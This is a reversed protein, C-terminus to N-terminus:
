SRADWDKPRSQEVTNQLADRVAKQTIEIGQRPLRRLHLTGGRIEMIRGSAPFEHPLIPVLSRAFRIQFSWCVLSSGIANANTSLEGPTWKDHNRRNTATLYANRGM